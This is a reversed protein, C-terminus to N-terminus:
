RSITAVHKREGYGIRGHHQERDGDVFLGVTWEVQGTDADCTSDFRIEVTYEGSPATNPEWKVSESAPALACLADYPDCCDWASLRGGSASSPHQKSIVEGNPDTVYLDLDGAVDEWDLTVEVHGTGTPPPPPPIQTAPPPQEPTAPPPSEPTVPPPSEPTAAPPPAPTAPAVCRATNGEETCREDSACHEVIDQESSSPASVRVDIQHGACDRIRLTESENACVEVLQPSAPRPKRDDDIHVKIQYKQVSLRAMSDGHAVCETRCPESMKTPMRIDYTPPDDVRARWICISPVRCGVFIAVLGGVFVLPAAAASAVTVGVVAGTYAVVCSLIQSWGAGSHSRGCHDFDEWSFANPNGDDCERAPHSLGPARGGEPPVSESIPNGAGDFVRIGQASIEAHGQRDYLVVTEREQEVRALLSQTRQQLQFQLAVVMREDASTLLLGRIMSGDDLAFEGGGHAETYGQEEALAHVDTFTEDGEVIRFFESPSLERESVIDRPVFPTDAPAPLATEIPEPGTLSVTVEGGEDVSVHVSSPLTCSGTLLAAITVICIFYLLSTKGRSM